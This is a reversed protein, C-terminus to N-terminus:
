SQSCGIVELVPGEAAPWWFPPHPEKDTRWNTLMTYKKKLTALSIETAVENGTATFWEKDDDRDWQPGHHVTFYGEYLTNSLKGNTLNRVKRFMGQHNIKHAEEEDEGDDTANFDRFCVPNPNEIDAVTIRAPYEKKAKGKEIPPARKVDDLGAAHTAPGASRVM